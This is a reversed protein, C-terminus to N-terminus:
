SEEQIDITTPHLSSWPCGCQLASAGSADIDEFSELISDTNSFKDGAETDVTGQQQVQGGPEQLDMLQDQHELLLRVIRSSLHNATQGHIGAHHWWGAWSM